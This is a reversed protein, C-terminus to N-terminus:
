REGTASYLWAANYLLGSARHPTVATRRNRVGTMIAGPSRRRRPHCAPDPRLARFGTSGDPWVVLDPRTAGGLPNVM